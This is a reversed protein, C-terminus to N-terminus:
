SCYNQKPTSGDIGPLVLSPVSMKKLGRQFFPRLLQFFFVVVCGAIIWNWRVSGANNVVLHIGELNLRMGMFFSALVLLMLASVMANIVNLQKM